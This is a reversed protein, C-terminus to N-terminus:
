LEVWEATTQFNSLITPYLKPMVAFFIFRFIKFINEAGWLTIWNGALFAYLFTYFTFHFIFFLLISLPTSPPPYSLPPVQSASHLRLQPSGLTFTRILAFSESLCGLPCDAVASLTLPSPLPLSPTRSPHGSPQTTKTNRYDAGAGLSNAPFSLFAFSIYTISVLVYFSLYISRLM